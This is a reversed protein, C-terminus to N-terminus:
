SDMMFEKANMRKDNMLVNDMKKMRGEDQDIPAKPIVLQSTGNWSLQSLERIEL